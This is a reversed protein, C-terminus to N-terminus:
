ARQPWRTYAFAFLAVLNIVPVIYLLAWWPSFGAKKLIAAIPIMPVFWIALVIIHWISFAGVDEDGM